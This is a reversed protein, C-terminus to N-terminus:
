FHDENSAKMMGDRCAELQATTQRPIHRLQDDHVRSVTGFLLGEVLWMHNGIADVVVCPEEDWPPTLTATDSRSRPRLVHDGIRIIKRNRYKRRRTENSQWQQKKTREQAESIWQEQVSRSVRKGDRSLGMKLEAASHLTTENVSNNIVRVARSLIKSWDEPTECMRKLRGKLVGIQRECMGNSKPMYSATLRQKVGNEECWKKVSKSNWTQANDSVLMEIRGNRQKWKNLAKIAAESSPSECSWAEIWRSLYDVMLVIFRPGELDGRPLPGAFDIGVAEGVKSVPTAGLSTRHQPPGWMQCKRCNEVFNRVESEMGKWCPGGDRKLNLITKRTGWHGEHAKSIRRLRENYQDGGRIANLDVEKRQALTPWRSLCDALFNDSSPLFHLFLRTDLPFNEWLWGLRRGIRLDTRSKHWVDHARLRQLASLSDTYVHVPCGVTLPLTDQLCWVIADLEGLFSSVPFGRIARSNTAIIRRESRHGAYLLYGAGAGSWDVEIHFVPSAVCRLFSLSNRLLHAAVARVQNQVSPWDIKRVSNQLFSYLPAIALGLGPCTGRCATFIGLIRQLDKKSRVLPLQSLQKSIYNRQHFADGSLSFGLFSVTPRCFQVKKPNVHMGASQLAALVAELNRDHSKRDHGGVIIDDFYATAPLHGLIRRVRDNFFGVSSAWGQPLTVFRYRRGFCSFCFLRSLSADVPIHFYGDRLDLVTFMRWSPDVARVANRTDPTYSNWVESYKNLKQFNVVVRVRGDPKRLFVVPSFYGRDFRPVEQIIGRSLLSRIEAQAADLPCDTFCPPSGFDSFPIPSKWVLDDARVVLAKLTSSTAYATINDAFLFPFRSQWDSLSLQESGSCDDPRESSNPHTNGVHTVLQPDNLIRGSGSFNGRVVKLKPSLTTLRDSFNHLRVSVRGNKGLIPTASVERLFCCSFLGTLGEGHVSVPLVVLSSEFPALFVTKGLKLVFSAKSISPESGSILKRDVRLTM